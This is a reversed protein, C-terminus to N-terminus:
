QESLPSKWGNVSGYFYTFAGGFLLFIISVLLQVPPLRDTGIIAPAFYAVLGGIGSALGLLSEM